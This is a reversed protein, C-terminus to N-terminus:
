QTIFSGPDITAPGDTYEAGIRLGSPKEDSYGLVGDEDVMHFTIEGEPTEVDLARTWRGHEVLVWQGVEYPDTNRPGKSYVKGWRPYIGRTKGDDGAIILGSETVQEGFDMETILLRKGIAQPTGIIKNINKAM